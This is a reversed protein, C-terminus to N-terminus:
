EPQDVRIVTMVVVDSAEVSVAGAVSRTVDVTLVDGREVLESGDSKLVAAQGDGRDTSRFGSGNGATLAPETSTVVVGNKKVTATLGDSGLSSQMNVGLSLVVDSIRGKVAAAGMLKNMVSATLTGEHGFQAHVSGVLNFSEGNFRQTLFGNGVNPGLTTADVLRNPLSWVLSVNASVGGSFNFLTFLAEADMDQSVQLHRHDTDANSTAGGTLRGLAAATETVDTGALVRDIEERTSALGLSALNASYLFAEGRLDTISVIATADATVEALPVFMTRDAPLGSTGTQLVGGGDLWVQTTTGAAVM